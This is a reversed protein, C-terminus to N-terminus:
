PKFKRQLLPCYNLTKSIASYLPRPASSLIQSSISFDNLALVTPSCFSIKCYLFGWGFSPALVALKWNCSSQYALFSHSQPEVLKCLNNQLSHRKNAGPFDCVHVLFPYIRIHATKKGIASLILSQVAM